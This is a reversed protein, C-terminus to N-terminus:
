TGYRAKVKRVLAALEDPTVEYLRMEPTPHLLWSVPPFNSAVSWSGGLGAQILACAPRLRTVDFVIRYKRDSQTVSMLTGM